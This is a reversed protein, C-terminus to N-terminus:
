GGHSENLRYEKASIGTIRKFTRSFSNYSMFGVKQCVAQISLDTNKLLEKAKEIRLESLYTQFGTNYTEAFTKSIYSGSVRFVEALSDLSIDNYYYLDIYEKVRQAVSREEAPRCASSIETLKSTLFGHLEDITSYDFLNDLQKYIINFDYGAASPRLAKEVTKFLMLTDKMIIDPDASKVLGVFLDIESLLKASDKAPLAHAINSICGDIGQTQRDNAYYHTYPCIILSECGLAFRHRKESLTQLFASHVDDLSSVASSICASVTVGYSDRLDDNVRRHFLSISSLVLPKDTNLIFVYQNKNRYIGTSNLTQSLTYYLDDFIKGQLIGFDKPSNESLIETYRDLEYLIVYFYKENFIVGCKALAVSPDPSSESRSNEIIELVTIDRIKAVNERIFKNKDDLENELTSIHSSIIQIEDNKKGFNLNPMDDINLSLNAIIRQLPKYIYFTIFWTSFLCFMVLLIIVTVYWLYVSHKQHAAYSNNYLTVFYWDPVIGSRQVYVAYKEGDVTRLKDTNKGSIREDAIKRIADSNYRLRSSCIVSDSSDSFIVSLYNSKIQSYGLQEALYRVKVNVIVIGSNFSSDSMVLPVAFSVVQAKNVTHVNSIYPVMFQYNEKANKLTDSIFGWHDCESPLSVSASSDIVTNHSNLVWVSQIFDYNSVYDKFFIMWDYFQMTYRDQVNWDNFNFINVSDSVSAISRVTRFIDNVSNDVTGSVTHLQNQSFSDTNANIVQNIKTVSISSLIIVCFLIVSFNGIIFRMLLINKTSFRMFKIDKFFNKIKM